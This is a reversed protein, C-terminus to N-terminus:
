SQPPLVPRASRFPGPFNEFIEGTRRFTHLLMDIEEDGLQDIVSQLYQTGNEFMLEVFLTGKRNLVVVRERASEPHEVVTLLNIPARTLSRIAKSIASSTIEFWDQLHQEIEKRPMRRGDEGEAYIIWLIVVQQRSLNIGSRLVDEVRNGAKYHIPFFQDLQVIPGKDKPVHPVDRQRNQHQVFEPTFLQQYTSRALASDSSPTPRAKDSGSEAAILRDFIANARAYSYMCIDAERPTFESLFWATLATGNEEMQHIFRQGKRTLRILKERASDPHEEITVLSLPAKSLSRIARTISSSTIDYWSTMTAQIYKRRMVVGNDGESHVLWLIIAQQRDLAASSRLTDEVKMGSNYHVPFFLELLARAAQQRPVHILKPEESRKRSARAPRKTVTSPSGPPPALHTAGPNSEAPLTVSQM